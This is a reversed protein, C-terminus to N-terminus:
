HNCCGNSHNVVSYPHPLDVVFNDHLNVGVAHSGIYQLDPPDASQLYRIEIEARLDRCHIGDSDTDAVLDVMKVFHGHTLGHLLGSTEGIGGL